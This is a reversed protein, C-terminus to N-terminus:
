SVQARLVMTHIDGRVFSLLGEPAWGNFVVGHGSPTVVVTVEGEISQSTEFVVGVYTFRLGLMGNDLTVLTRRSVSLQSLQSSLVSSIFDNALTSAPQNYPVFAFVDLNGGGRSLAEYRSQDVTQYGADQWGSLPQVTVIGPSGVPPGAPKALASAVAWGGLTLVLLVGTVILPGLWRRYPRSVSASLDPRTPPDTVTGDHLTV